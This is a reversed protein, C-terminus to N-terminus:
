IVFTIISPKEYIKVPYSTSLEKNNAVNNRYMGDLSPQSSHQVSLDMVPGDMVEAGQQIDIFM